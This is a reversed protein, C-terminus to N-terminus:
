LQVVKKKKKRKMIKEKKKKKDTLVKQNSNSSADSYHKLDTFISYSLSKPLLLHGPCEKKNCDLVHTQILKFIEMYNNERNQSYKLYCSIYYYIGSPNLTKYNNCFLNHSFIKLSRENKKRLYLLM